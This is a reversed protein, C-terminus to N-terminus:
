NLLLSAKCVFITRTDGKSQISPSALTVWGSNIGDESIYMGGAGWCMSCTSEIDNTADKKDTVEVFLSGESQHRKQLQKFSIAKVGENAKRIKAILEEVRKQYRMGNDRQDRTDM